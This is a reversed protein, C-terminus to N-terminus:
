SPNTESSGFIHPEAIDPPTMLKTIRDLNHEVFERPKMFFGGESAKSLSSRLKNNVELTEGTQTSIDRLTIGESTLWEQLGVPELEREEFVVGSVNFGQRYM